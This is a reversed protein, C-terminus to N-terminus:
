PKLSEFDLLKQHLIELHEITQKKRKIQGQLIKEERKIIILVNTNGIKNAQLTIAKNLALIKKRLRGIEKDLIESDSLVKGM